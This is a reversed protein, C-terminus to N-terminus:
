SKTAAKPQAPALGQQYEIEASERLRKLQNQLSENVRQRRIADIALKRNEAVTGAVPERATIVSVYVTGGGPVIFPTGPPLANIQRFVNPQLVASDLSATNSTFAIGLRGLTARVEDLSRASELERLIGPDAPAPFQVQNLAFRTRQAFMSPNEAIFRDAEQPTPLKQSTNARETLAAVLLAENLRRQRTLYEPSRDVGQEQAAQALLKRDVIRQLIQPLVQKRDASDPIRSYQLEENLEKQSIEEGNVIAVTQGTAERQCAALLCLAAGALVRGTSGM